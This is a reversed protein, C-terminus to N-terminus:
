RKTWVAIVGGYEAREKVEDIINKGIVTTFLHLRKPDSSM